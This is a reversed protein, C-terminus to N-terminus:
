EGVVQRQDHAFTRDSYASAPPASPELPTHGWHLWPHCVAVATQLQIKTRRVNIYKNHLHGVYMHLKYNACCLELHVAPRHTTIPTKHMTTCM